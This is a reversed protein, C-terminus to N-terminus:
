PRPHPRAPARDRRRGGRDARDAARGRDYPRRGDSPVKPARGRRLRDALLLGLAAVALAAAVLDAADSAVGGGGPLGLTSRLVIGLLSASAVLTTLLRSEFCGDRWLKGAALLGVLGMSGLLLSLYGASGVQLLNAVALAAGAVAASRALRSPSRRMLLGQGDNRDGDGPRHLLHNGHPEAGRRVPELGDDVARRGHPAPRRRVRQGDAHDHRGHPPSGAVTVTSATMTGVMTPPNKSAKVFNEGLSVSGLNVVSGTRQVDLVDRAPGQGVTAGDRLRVTVSVGEGSWGPTVTALNVQQSFTFTVTDGVDPRGALPGGNVTQVDLGRLPSNDTRRETVLASTTTVGKGDVLVARLDYLGNPVTTTDWTCTYPATATTCLDTWASSGTAAAQITVSRVGATSSATARVTVQGALFAGPDELSVASVTNDVVRNTVAASTTTNGAVDTAVARFSYAGDALTTTDARCSYPADTVTCYTTWSTTGSPTRQLTVAAIGSVNDTAVAQFTRTGSLPTGPDTMTVRPLENDVLVGPVVASTAVVTSGSLAVARLDYEENGFGNTTWSCTYPAATASCLTKWGTTGAPAYEVRVSYASTGANYLTAGLAVTGRVTEGPEALVVLLKNAVTTRVTESVASYGARDTARARLSYGGDAVRTTDWGCSYPETSVTCVTVWSSGNAALHEITVSAVGTEGDAADATLTVTSQAPVAPTRLSVTPPTWDPAAVVTSPAHTTTSTFAATSFAPFGATGALALVLLVLLRLKRM